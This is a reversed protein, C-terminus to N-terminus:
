RPGPITWDSNRWIYDNVTIEIKADILFRAPGHETGVCEGYLMNPNNITQDLILAGDKFHKGGCFPCEDTYLSLYKITGKITKM